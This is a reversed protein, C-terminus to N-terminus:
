LENRNDEDNESRGLTEGQLDRGSTEGQPREKDMMKSQIGTKIFVVVMNGAPAEFERLPFQGPM